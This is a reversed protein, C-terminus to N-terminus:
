EELLYEINYRQKFGKAVLRAKFRNVIDDVKQKVKFVWKCDIISQEERRTHLHLTNNKLLASYEADM